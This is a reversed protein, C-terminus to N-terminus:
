SLYRCIVVNKSSNGVWIQGTNDVCIGWPRLLGIQRHTLIIQILRGEGDVYHICDNNYDTVLLNNYKDVSIGRPDFSDRLGAVKGDYVWRVDSREDVCVVHIPNWILVCLYKGCSVVKYPDTIQRKGKSDRGRIKHLKGDIYLALHNRDDQGRLCVVIDEKFNLCVGYPIFPSTNILTSVEGSESVLRVKRDSSTVIM